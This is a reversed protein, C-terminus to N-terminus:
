QLAKVVANYASVAEQPDIGSVAIAWVGRAPDCRATVHLPSDKKGAHFDGAKKDDDMFTEQSETFGAKDAAVKMDNFCSELSGGLLGAGVFAVTGALANLPLIGIALATLPAFASVFRKNMLDQSMVVLRVGDKGAGHAGARELM